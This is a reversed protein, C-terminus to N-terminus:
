PTLVATPWHGSHVLQHAHALTTEVLRSAAVSSVRERSTAIVWAIRLGRVPAASFQAAALNGHAACCPLVAYGLGRAVLDLMLASTDVEVSPQAVTGAKAAANDVITRLSNPYATLILPHRCLEKVSVPANMSLGADARGIAVLQESLLPECKLPHVPEQTSFIAVDADGNAVMDRAGRSMGEHVTLRVKPFTRTFSAAVDTTLLSRLASPAAFSVTGSPETAQASVEERLATVDHMLASARRQLLKGADTLLVGRAKRELLQVGLEEELLQIQRSLAPQSIWVRTAARSVNGIHAVELFYQLQRIDMDSVWADSVHSTHM